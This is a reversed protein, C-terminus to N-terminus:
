AKCATFDSATIRNLKFTTTTSGSQVEGAVEGFGRIQLDKEALRFGDNTSRVANLRERADKALIKRTHMVFDGIGGNRVLRGRLQHLQAIGFRDADRVVMLRVDPVDVGVEIATSSVLIPKDGRKFADLEAAAQESGMQGHVLAVKGPFAAELDKYATKAARLGGTDKGTGNETNDPAVPEKANKEKVAAYLYIVRFGSNVASHHLSNILAKDDDTTVHSRITKNVPPTEIQALTCGDFLTIALSRPIPTASAEILHTHTSLLAERQERSYKHQEDTVVLDFVPREAAHLLATTGIWVLAQGDIRQSSGTVLTCSLAPFRKQFQEHIQRALTESPAMVACPRKDMAFGAVISLFVLTKGSGVDGNILIRAPTDGSLAPVAAKFATIQGQSPTEPQSKLAEWVLSRIQTFPKIKTLRRNNQRGQYRIEAVTMRKIFALAKTGENVTKPTHIAKFLSEMSGGWHKQVLKVVVPRNEALWDCALTINRPNRIAEQAYVGIIAGSVKGSIGSYDVRPTPSQLAREPSNFYIGNRFSSNKVNVLVTLWDGVQVDRWEAAGFADCEISCKGDSLTFILMAPFRNNTEKRERDCKKIDTVEARVLARTAYLDLQSFDTVLRSLDVYDSPLLFLAEWGQYVGLEPIGDTVYNHNSKKAM